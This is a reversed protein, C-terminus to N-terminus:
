YYQIFIIGYCEKKEELKTMRKARRLKEKREMEEREM